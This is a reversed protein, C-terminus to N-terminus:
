RHVLRGGVDRYHNEIDLSKRRQYMVLAPVILAVLLIILFPIIRPWTM